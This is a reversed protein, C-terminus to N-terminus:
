DRRWALQSTRLERPARAEALLALAELLVARHLERHFPDGCAAGFPFHLALSRPAGVIETLEPLLTLGVTSLGLEELECSLLATTQVCISCTPILIAADVEDQALLARLERASARLGPFPRLLGGCFSAHRPAASAIRGDRALSELAQMPLGVEPDDVTYKRDVYLRELDLEARPTGHPVIRHSPDGWPQDLVDFPADGIRHLGATTVLAIRSREIPKPPVSWPVTRRQLFSYTPDRDARVHALVRQLLSSQPTGAYLELGGTDFGPASM